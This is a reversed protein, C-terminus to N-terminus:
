IIILMRKSEFRVDKLSSLVQSHSGDYLIKIGSAPHIKFIPLNDINKNEFKPFSFFHLILDEMPNRVESKCILLQGFQAHLALNLWLITLHFYSKMPKKEFLRLKCKNAFVKLTYTCKHRKLYYQQMQTIIIWNALIFHHYHYFYFLMILLKWNITYKMYIIYWWIYVRTEFVFYLLYTVSYLLTNTLYVQILKIQTIFLIFLM